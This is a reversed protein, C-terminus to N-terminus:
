SSRQFHQGEIITYLVKGGRKVIAMYKDLSRNIGSVEGDIIVFNGRAGEEIPQMGLFEYANLTAAGIIEKADSFSPDEARAILTATELERWMDPSVLGGNDTGLLLRVGKKLATAVRPIGVSFWLNSRPCMVLPIKLRGIEELEKMSLRTGHVLLTPSLRLLRELDGELGQKLTESVHAARM